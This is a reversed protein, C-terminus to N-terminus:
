RKLVKSRDKKQNAERSKEAAEVEQALLQKLLSAVMFPDLSRNLASAQM